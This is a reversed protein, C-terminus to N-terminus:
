SQMSCHLIHQQRLIHWGHQTAMKINLRLISTPFLQCIQQELKEMGSIGKLRLNHHRGFGFQQYLATRHPLQQWSDAQRQELTYVLSGLGIRSFMTWQRFLISDGGLVQRYFPGLLILLALSTFLIARLQSAYRNM